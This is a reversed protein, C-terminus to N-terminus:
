QWGYKGGVLVTLRQKSKKVAKSAKVGRFAFTKDPLCQHFLGTEDVNFIGSPQYRQLLEPLTKEFWNETLVPSVSASERCVSKFVLSHREKFRHLWGESAEWDVIGLDIALKNPKAKILPGGIPAHQGERSLGYFFLRTWM